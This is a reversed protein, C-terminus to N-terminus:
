TRPRSTSASEVLALISQISDFNELRLEEDRVSTGSAREVFEILQVAGLSDLLQSSILPETLGVSRGVIQSLFETLAEVFRSAENM